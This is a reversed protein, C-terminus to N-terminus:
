LVSELFLLSAIFADDAEVLFNLDDDVAVAVVHLLALVFFAFVVLDVVAGFFLINTISTCYAKLRGGFCTSIPSIYRYLSDFIALVLRMSNLRSSVSSKSMSFYVLFYPFLSPNVFFFIM